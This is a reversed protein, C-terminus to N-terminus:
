RAVGECTGSQARARQGGKLPPWVCTRRGDCWCDDPCKGDGLPDWAENWRHNPSDCDINPRPDGQCTGSKCSRMGDCDCDTACAGPGASAKSEDHYYNFYKCDGAVAKTDPHPAEQSTPTTGSPGPNEACAAFLVASAAITTLLLHKLITTTLM